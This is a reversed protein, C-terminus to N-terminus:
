QLIFRLCQVGASLSTSLLTAKHHEAITLFNNNISYYYEDPVMIQTHLVLMNATYQTVRRIM